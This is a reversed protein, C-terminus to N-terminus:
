KIDRLNETFKINEAYFSLSDPAIGSCHGSSHPEYLTFLKRVVVTSAVPLNSKRVSDPFRGFIFTISNRHVPILNYIFVHQCFNESFNM